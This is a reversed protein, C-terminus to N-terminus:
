AAGAASRLAEEMRRYLLPLRPGLVLAWDGGLVHVQGRAV